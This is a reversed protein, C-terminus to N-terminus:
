ITKLIAKYCDYNLILWENACMTRKIQGIFPIRDTAVVGPWLSGQLLPLSLMFLIGLIEKVCFPLLAPIIVGVIFELLDQGNRSFLSWRQSFWSSFLGNYWSQVNTMCPKSVRQKQCLFLLWLTECTLRRAGNFM